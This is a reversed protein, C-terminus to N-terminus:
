REKTQHSKKKREREKAKPFSSFALSSSCLSLSGGGASFFGTVGETDGLPCFFDGPALPVLGPGLPLVDAGAALPPFSPLFCGGVGILDELDLFGPGGAGGGM